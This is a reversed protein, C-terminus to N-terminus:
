SSSYTAIKRLLPQVAILALAVIFVFAFVLVVMESPGSTPASGGTASGLQRIAIRKGPPIGAAAQSHALYASLSRAALNAFAIARGGSPGQTYLRVIPVIPNVQVEIRYSDPLDLLDTPSGTPGPVILAAPVNATVPPYEKIAEPSIGLRHAVRDMVAPSLLVNGALLSRNVLEEYEYTSNAAAANNMLQLTISAAAVQVERPHLGPPWVSPSYVTLVASVLAIVAVALMM